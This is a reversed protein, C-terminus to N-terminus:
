ESYTDKKICDVIVNSFKIAGEHNLHLPDNFYKSNNQFITDQYFDWHLAKLSDFEKPPRYNMRRVHVPSTIIYTKVGNNTAINIFNDIAKIKESSLITDPEMKIDEQLINNYPIYGFQNKKKSDKLERYNLKIINFFISNFPYIKSILKIKEKPKQLNLIDRIEKHSHYYPSLSNIGFYLDTGDNSLLIIKPTYRKLISKLLATQYLIGHNDKGTNYFSMNLSDKFISSVYHHSAPSSGFVIIDAQVSDIVFTTEYNEGYKQNFYFYRLMRGICLDLIFVTTSFIIINIVFKKLM